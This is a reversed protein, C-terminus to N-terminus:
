NSGLSLDTELAGIPELLKQAMGTGESGKKCVSKRLKVGMGMSLNGELAGIQQLLKQVM